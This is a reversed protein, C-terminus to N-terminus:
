AEQTLAILDWKTDTLNWIFGMYMTKSIVTTTPLANGLARYQTGYTLARATGNDKLRIIMRDANVPTGIPNNFLLSGAQATIVWIDSTSIDPTTSTTYNAASITRETFRKNTLTDTTARGVITDSAQFIQTTADSGSLILSNNVTLIKGSAISAALYKYDWSNAATGSTLICTLRADGGAALVVIANGGSSNITVLGTSNNAIYYQTGLQLTSVVPMVVTQTTSGTIFQNYTSNVTLTTTGAAAISASYGQIFKTSTANLTSRFSGSVDLTYAPTTTQIGVRSQTVALDATGTPNAFLYLSQSYPAVSTANGIKLNGGVNYLYADLANGYDTGSFVYNPSLGSNNIGMDIYNNTTTGTDAYVSFDGSASVGTNTNRVAFKTYGNQNGVFQGLIQNPSNVFVSGTITENGIVRTSGSVLLSGTM